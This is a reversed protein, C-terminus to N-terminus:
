FVPQHRRFDADGDGLLRYGYDVVIWRGPGEKKLELRMNVPGLTREFNSATASGMFKVVAFKQGGREFYEPHNTLNSVGCGVFEFRNMEVDVMNRLEADVYDDMLTEIKNKRVLDRMEYVIRHLAERDTEVSRELFLWSGFAVVCGLAVYLLKVSGTNVWLMLPIFTAASGLVVIFLPNEFLM